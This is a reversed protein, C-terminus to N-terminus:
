RELLDPSPGLFGSVVGVGWFVYLDQEERHGGVGSRCLDSTCGQVLSSGRAQPSRPWRTVARTGSGTPSQAQLRLRRM